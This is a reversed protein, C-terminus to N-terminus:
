VFLLISFRCLHLATQCRLKFYLDEPHATMLDIFLPLARLYNQENYFYEANESLQLEDKSLKKLDPQNSKQAFASSCVLFLSFILALKKM